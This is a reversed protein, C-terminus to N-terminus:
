RKKLKLISRKYIALLIRRLPLMCRWLRAQSLCVGSRLDYETGDPRVCATATGCVCELSCTERAKLNGDGMLTLTEGDIRLVRHLVFRGDPLHALVIDGVAPAVLRQLRVRDRAGIIFPLMSQGGPSLMVEKGERLLSAVEGLIIANPIVIRDKEIM